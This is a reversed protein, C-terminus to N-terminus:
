GPRTAQLVWAVPLEEGKMVLPSANEVILGQGHLDSCLSKFAAEDMSADRMSEMREKHLGLETDMSRLWNLAEDPDYYQIRQHISQVTSHLYAIMDGAVHEGHESLISELEAIAPNLKRAASEYPTRDGGRVAAFGKEFFNLAFEVFGTQQARQLADIAATCERYFEGPRIHMLFLLSGGPALLRLAEEIAKPGAYEIGFQSTILDYHASELPIASADTAMGAIDPFRKRVADVAATSIDVCSMNELKADPIRSFYEIVAGSGTGIDLIRADPRAVVFEGLATSWFTPFASHRIETPTYARADTAGQWFANWSNAPQANNPENM